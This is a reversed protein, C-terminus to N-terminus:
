MQNSSCKLVGLTMQSPISVAIYINRDEQDTM